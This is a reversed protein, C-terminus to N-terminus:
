EPVRAEAALRETFQALSLDEVQQPNDRNRVAVREGDAEQGITFSSHYSTLGSTIFCADM